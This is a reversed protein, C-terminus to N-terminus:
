PRSTSAGTRCSLGRLEAGIGPGIGSLNTAPVLTSASAPPTGGAEAVARREACLSSIAGIILPRVHHRTSVQSGAVSFFVVGVLM